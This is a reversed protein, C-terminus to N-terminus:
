GRHHPPQTLAADPPLILRPQPPLHNNEEPGKRGKRGARAGREWCSWVQGEDGLAAPATGQEQWIRLGHGGRSPRKAQGCRQSGRSETGQLQVRRLQGRMAALGGLGWSM